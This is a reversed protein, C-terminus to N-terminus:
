VYSRVSSRSLAKGGSSYTRDNEIYGKIGPTDGTGRDIPLGDNFQEKESETLEFWESSYELFSYFSAGSIDRGPRVKGPDDNAASEIDSARYILTPEIWDGDKKYGYSVTKLFGHKLFLAIEKEYREIKIDSPSGYFRQMRKLDTAVKSALYNAHTMTFTKTETATFSYSM